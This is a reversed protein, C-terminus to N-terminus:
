RSQKLKALRRKAEQAVKGRVDGTKTLLTLQQMTLNGILRLTLDMPTSPNKVLNFVLQRSSMWSRNQAIFMIADRSLGPMKSYELIEDKTVRPNRVVFIHLSKAPDRILLQRITRRAKPALARKEGITMSRIRAYADSYSSEKGSLPERTTQEEDRPASGREDSVSDPPPLDPQELLQVVHLDGMDQLVRGPAEVRTDDPLRIHLDIEELLALEEDRPITVVHM